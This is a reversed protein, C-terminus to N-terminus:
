MNACNTSNTLFLSDINAIIYARSFSYGIKLCSLDGGVERERHMMVDRVKNVTIM